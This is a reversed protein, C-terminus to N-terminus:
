GAADDAILADLVSQPWPITLAAPSTVLSRSERDFLAHWSGSPPAPPPTTFPVFLPATSGLFFFLRLSKPVQQPYKPRQFPSQHLLWLSSPPPCHPPPWARPAVLPLQLFSLPTYLITPILLLSFRKMSRNVSGITDTFCRARCSACGGSCFLPCSRRVRM